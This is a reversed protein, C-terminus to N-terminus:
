STPDPVPIFPPRRHGSIGPADRCAPFPVRLFLFYFGTMPFTHIFLVGFWGIFWNAALAPLVQRLATTVVGSPGYTFSHGSAAVVSGFVPPIAFAPKPIARGRVHVYEPVVVQVVVQVVGLIAVTM